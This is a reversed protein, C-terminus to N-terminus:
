PFSVGPITVPLTGQAEYRGLLVQSVEEWVLPRSGYAAIYTPINPFAQLEYPTRIGIALVNEHEKQLAQVLEAQELNRHADATVIVVKEFELAKAVVARQEDGSLSTGVTVAELHALGQNKLARGLSGMDVLIDEAGTTANEQFEIVLVREHGLPLNSEVPDKVLTISSRIAERMVQVHEATGLISADFDAPWRGVLNFRKKIKMVRAVSADIREESIRGSKVAAILANYAEQQLDESHSIVVMDAGAEITMVAAEVTGYSETIAKMEMCDTMVLGEFGLEQRLLKTLVRESLTAPVKESPEIAPFVVHSTMVAAVDTAIAARFPVLEVAELRSRNHSVVPLEHHSDVATDGHGPFHKAVAAVHRQYGCIAAAGLKAVTRPDEGFSRVGIVPNEPNNNVDVVPALNMNIGTARLELGSVACVEETISESKTAGLAMASPAVVVEKTLRAITGGEQDVAIFLGAEGPSEKALRQLDSNLRVLQEVDSINRSFHIIGGLNNETIFRRIFPTVKTGRFGFMLLQGIKAELSMAKSM